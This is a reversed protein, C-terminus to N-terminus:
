EYVAFYYLKKYNPSDPTLAPMDPIALLEEGHNDEIDFFAHTRAKGQSGEFFSSQLSFGYTGTKLPLILIDVSLSDDEPIIYIERLKGSSESIGVGGKIVYSEFDESDIASNYLSLTNIPTYPSSAFGVWIEGKGDIVKISDNLQSPISAHIRLTDGLKIYATDPFVSIPFVMDPLTLNEGSGGVQCSKCGALFLALIIALYRM